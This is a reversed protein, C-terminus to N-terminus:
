HARDPNLKYSAGHGIPNSGYVAARHGTRRWCRRRRLAEGGRELNQTRVALLRVAAGREGGLVDLRQAGGAGHTPRQRPRQAAVLKRGHLLDIQPRLHPRRVEARNPDERVVIALQPVEPAAGPLRKRPSEVNEPALRRETARNCRHGAAHNIALVHHDIAAEREGSAPLLRAPHTRVDEKGARRRLGWFADFRFEM